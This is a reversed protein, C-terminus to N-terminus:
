GKLYIMGDREEVAIPVLGGTCPGGLCRGSGPEYLAGHTSCVLHLGERDFFKGQEWDLEMPMHGCRNLYARVSGQYRV